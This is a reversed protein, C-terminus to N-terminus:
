LPTIEQGYDRGTFNDPQPLKKSKGAGAAKAHLASQLLAKDWEAQTRQTEPKTLWHAIFEQQIAPTLQVLAQRAQEAVHPSPEWGPRMAYRADPQSTTKEERRKEERPLAGSVTKANGEANGKGKSKAVRKATLARQKASASTHRDFNPMVLMNDKQELWGSVKMAEGFGSVGSIRDPLAFTVSAANGDTTHKDFWQWIRILKGVVADPDLQLRAAIAHVEPKDPLELEIKM